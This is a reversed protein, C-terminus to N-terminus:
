GIITIRNRLAMDQESLVLELYDKIKRVAETKWIGGEAEVLKFEPTGRDGIRFVFQSVPQEVEQFTRYPRLQVPNPVIADAKAAVGVTMTAVQTCGDDSYTQENKSEINGALLLVADLDATKAFNAQLGIMFSEQDYWQDFHFGSVQADTEFLVERKREGDLASMLRVKTPSVVHIIMRRGETFEERCNVIYDALASLTTAKVPEAYNATDYRRLAKNAYTHGCIEVVETKENERALDEVHELADKLGELM